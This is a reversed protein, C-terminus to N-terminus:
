HQVTHKKYQCSSFDVFHFEKNYNGRFQRKLNRAEDIVMFYFNRSEQRLDYSRAM